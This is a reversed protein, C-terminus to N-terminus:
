FLRKNGAGKKSPAAVVQKKKTEEQTYSLLKLAKQKVWDEQLPLNFGTSGDFDKFDDSRIAEAAEEPYQEQLQVLEKAWNNWQSDEIINTDFVYYICSHVLIQLRRQQIKEIITRDM